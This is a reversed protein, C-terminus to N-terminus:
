GRCDLSALSLRVISGCVARPVRARGDVCWGVKRLDRLRASIATESGRLGMRELERQLEELTLWAYRRMLAQVGEFVTMRDM